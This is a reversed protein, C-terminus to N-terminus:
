ADEQILLLEGVGREAKTQNCYLKDNVTKSQWDDCECYVLVHERTTTQLPRAVDRLKNHPPRPKGASDRECTDPNLRRLLLRELKEIQRPAVRVPDKMVRWHVTEICPPEPM